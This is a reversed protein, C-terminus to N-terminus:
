GFRQCPYGSGSGDEGRTCNDENQTDNSMGESFLGSDLISNVDMGTERLLSANAANMIDLLQQDHDQMGADFPRNVALRLSDPSYNRIITEPTSIRPDTNIGNNHIGPSPYMMTRPNMRHDTSQNMRTSPCTTLFHSGRIAFQPRQNPSNPGYIRTNMSSPYMNHNMNAVLPSANCTYQQVNGPNGMYARTNCPNNQINNRNSYPIGAPDCNPLSVSPVGRPFNRNSVYASTSGNPVAVSPVGSPLDQNSVNATTSGNSNRQNMAIKQHVLLENYKEVQKKIVALTNYLRFFTPNQNELEEWILEAYAPERREEIYLYAMTENKTMYRRLCRAVIIDKMSDIEICRRTRRIKEESGPSPPNRRAMSRAM